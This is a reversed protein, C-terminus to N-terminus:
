RSQGCLAQWKAFGFRKIYAAMLKQAAFETRGERFQKLHTIASLTALESAEAADAAAKAAVAAAEAAVQELSKAETAL